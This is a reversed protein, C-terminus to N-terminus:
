ALAARLAPLAQEAAQRGLALGLRKRGSSVVM